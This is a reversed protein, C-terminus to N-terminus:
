TAFLFTADYQDTVFFAVNEKNKKDISDSHHYLLRITSGVDYLM